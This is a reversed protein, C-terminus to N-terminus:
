YLYEDLFIQQYYKNNEYFIARVVVKMGPVEIVKNLILEDDSNFKITMYKEDYDDSTKVISNIM